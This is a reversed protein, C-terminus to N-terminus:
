RQEVSLEALYRFFFRTFKMMEGEQLVSNWCVSLLRLAMVVVFTTTVHNLDRADQYKTPFILTTHHHM